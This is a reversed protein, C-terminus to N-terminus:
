RQRFMDVGFRLTRRTGHSALTRESSKRELRSQNRAHRIVPEVEFPM